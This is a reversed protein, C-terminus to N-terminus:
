VLKKYLNIAKYNDENVELRIKKMGRKECIEQTFNMLLEGIGCKRFEKKVVINSIYATRRDMDNAYVCMLACEQADKKYIYVDANRYLKESYLDINVGMCELSQYMDESFYKLLRNIEELNTIKEIEDQM